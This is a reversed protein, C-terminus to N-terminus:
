LENSLGLLKQFDLSSTFASIRSIPAAFPFKVPRFKSYNELEEAQEYWYWTQYRWIFWKTTGLKVLKSNQQPFIKTLEGYQGKKQKM